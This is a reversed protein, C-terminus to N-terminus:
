IEELEEVRNQELDAEASDIYDQEVEGVDQTNEVGMGAGQGGDEQSFLDRSGPITEIAPRRDLMGSAKLDDLGPLDM